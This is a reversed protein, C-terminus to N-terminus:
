RISVKEVQTSPVGGIEASISIFCQVPRQVVRQPRFLIAGPDDKFRKLWCGGLRLTVCWSSNAELDDDDQM